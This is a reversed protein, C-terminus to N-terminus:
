EGLYSSRIGFLERIVADSYAGKVLAETFEQESKIEGGLVSAEMRGKIEAPM